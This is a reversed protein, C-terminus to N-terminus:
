PELLERKEKITRDAQQLHETIEAPSLYFNKLQEHFVAELDQVPIKNRCRYCIYKPSNSPVYM